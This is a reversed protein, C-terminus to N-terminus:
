KAKLSDYVAKEAATWTSTAAPDNFPFSQSMFFGAVGNVPDVHFYNNGTYTLTVQPFQYTCLGAWWASDAKRGTELDDYTNLGIFSWGKKVGPNLKIKYTFSPLADPIERDLPQGPIHAIQDAYM